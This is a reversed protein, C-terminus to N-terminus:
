GVLVRGQLEDLMRQLVIKELVISAQNILAVLEDLGSMQKFDPYNDGYFLFISREQCVLPLAFVSLDTHAGGGIRDLLETHWHGEPMRGIFPQGTSLVQDFISHSGLPIKIDRVSEDATRHDTVPDLGFQGLGCIEDERVVFLIGRTAVESAYRMILLSVEAEFSHSRLEALLSCLLSARNSRAEGTYGEFGFTMFPSVEGGRGNGKEHDGTVAEFPNYSEESGLWEKIALHQRDRNRSSEDTEKAAGLLVEGVDLGADLKMESLSAAVSAQNLEIGFRGKELGVLGGVVSQIHRKAASELEEETMVGSEIILSGLTWIGQNHVGIQRLRGLVAPDIKGERVLRDALTDGPQIAAYTIRGQEIVIQGALAGTDLSLTGTKRSLSLIQLIDTLAFDSLDGTLEM